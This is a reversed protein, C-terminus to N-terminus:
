ASIAQSENKAFGELITCLQDIDVFWRIGGDDRRHALRDLTVLYKLQSFIIAGLRGAELPDQSAEDKQVQECFRRMSETLFGDLSISGDANSSGPEANQIAYSTKVSAVSIIPWLPNTKDVAFDVDVVLVKGGLILNIKGDGSEDKFTEM